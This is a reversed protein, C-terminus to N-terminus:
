KKRKWKGAALTKLARLTAPSFVFRILAGVLGIPRLRLVGHLYGELVAEDHFSPIVNLQYRSPLNLLPTASGIVAFLLGTDAPNGLGLRLNVVVERLRLQTFLDRILILFQRLLGRTQLLRLTTKLDLGRKKEPKKKVRAKEKEPRKKQGPEKSILGFLWVMRLKLRPRTKSDLSLTTDLPVCLLLIILGVLSTLTIIVWL